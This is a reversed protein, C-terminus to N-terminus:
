AWLTFGQFRQVGEHKGPMEFALKASRDRGLLQILYPSQRNPLRQGWQTEHLDLKRATSKRGHEQSLQPNGSPNPHVIEIFIGGPSALHNLQRTLLRLTEIVVINARLMEQKPQKGKPLAHGHFHEAPHVKGELTHSPLDLLHHPLPPSVLTTPGM